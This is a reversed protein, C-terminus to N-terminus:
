VVVRSHIRPSARPRMGAVRPAPLSWARRSSFKKAPAARRNMQGRHRAQPGPLGGAHHVVPHMCPARVAAPERVARRWVFLWRRGYWAEPVVGFENSSSSWGAVRGGSRDDSARIAHRRAREGASCVRDHYRALVNVTRWLEHTRGAHVITPLSWTRNHSESICSAGWPEVFTAPVSSPGCDLRLLHLAKCSLSQAPACRVRAQRECHQILRGSSKM